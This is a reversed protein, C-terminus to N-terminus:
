RQEEKHNMRTWVMTQPNLWLITLGKQLAYQLTSKTGGSEGAYVSVLLSSRDVMHRNRQMMCGRHYRENLLVVEDAQGLIDKYRAQYEYSWRTAQGAYPVACVLRLNPHERKQLLAAEAFFIDCGQAMGDYLTDYGTRVLEGICDFLNQKIAICAPHGEDSGFALKDPRHGSFCCSRNRM